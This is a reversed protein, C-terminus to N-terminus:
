AGPILEVSSLETQLGALREQTLVGEETFVADFMSFPTLDFVPLGVVEPVRDDWDGPAQPELFTPWAPPMIKFTQTVAYAPVGILKAAEVAARTGLKNVIQADGTIGDCGVLVADCRRVAEAIDVDAVRTLKVDHDGLYEALARGENQPGSEAVVVERDDRHWTLITDAVAESCSLTFLREREAIGQAAENVSLDTSDEVMDLLETALVDFDWQGGEREMGLLLRAALDPFVGMGARCSAFARIAQLLAHRDLNEYYQQIYGALVSIGERALHTAGHETDTAIDTLGDWFEQDGGAPWVRALGDSLGPVTDMGAVEDPTFWGYESAEWNTEIVPPEAAEFLYSFVLWHKGFRDDDVRLPVGIGRLHVQDESVGTEELLEQYAQNLPVREVYGSIGAWLGRYTSVEESRRILLVKSGHTLFCTVVPVWEVKESM